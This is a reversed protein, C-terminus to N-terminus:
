LKTLSLREILSELESQTLEPLKPFPSVPLFNLDEDVQIERITKAIETNVREPDSVISGDETRVTTIIGGDRKKYRHYNLVKKIKSYANKRPIEGIRSEEMQRVLLQQDRRFNQNTM